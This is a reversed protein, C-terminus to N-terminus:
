RKHLDPFIDHAFWGPLGVELTHFDSPPSVVVGLNILRNLQDSADGSQLGTFTLFETRPLAGQILLALFAPATKSKIGAEILRPNTSFAHAVSERLKSRSLAATMYDVEEHCVDLLFELVTLSANDSRQVGGALQSEQTRDTMDLVAHYEERRRAIGRSLSWLHPHLGIQTFHMHVIMRAVAGNGDSFPQTQVLHYHHALAVLIRRRLETIGDLTSEKNALNLANKLVEPETHYGDIIRSYHADSDMLLRSLCAATEPAVMGALYATKTVLLDASALISPPISDPLAPNSVNMATVSDM